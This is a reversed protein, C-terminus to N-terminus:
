GQNSDEGRHQGGDAGNPEVDELGDGTALVDRLVVSTALGERVSQWTQEATRGGVDVKLVTWSTRELLRDTLAMETLLHDAASKLDHVGSTGRLAHLKQVYWDSWGPEEREIARRLAVEPEDRLYVATVARRAMVAQLDGIFAAMAHEDHGWAVLSPIFPLLADTVVVDFGDADAGELFTGMAQVIAEPRVTGTGDGFQRAVSEFALRTLIESEEFHDVTLGRGQLEGVLARCLTSKGVGPGSGMVAVVHASHVSAGV